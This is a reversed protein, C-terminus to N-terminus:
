VVNLTVHHSHCVDQKYQRQVARGCTMNPRARPGRTHRVCLSLIYPTLTVNTLVVDAEVDCRPFGRWVTSDIIGYIYTYTYM